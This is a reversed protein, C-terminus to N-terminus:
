LVKENKKVYIAVFISQFLSVNGMRCIASNEHGDQAILKVWDRGRVRASVRVRVRARM